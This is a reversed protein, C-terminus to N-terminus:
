TENQHESPLFKMQAILDSATGGKPMRRGAVGHDWVGIAAAHPASIGSALLGGITGALVDGTGATALRDNGTPNFWLPNPGILTHPGKLVVTGFHDLRSIASIRDSEVESRTIGLLRGAEAAHPTIIRDHRDTQVDTRQSFVTLADADAVVGGDFEHWLHVLRDQPEVGLGPGMVLVDHRRPDLTEPEALIVEPWLGHFTEWDKRAALLTVLGAGGRFAGHAALVAAGGGGWIAVHGRDWKADSQTTVPRWADIDSQELLHANSHALSPDFTHALSLGLDVCYVDGSWESGPACLLGTKWRGLTVTVDASVAPGILQGTNAHIGTPIDIAVCYPAIACASVANAIMGKSPRSQGTGLLADVAVTAKSVVDQPLLFPIDMQECLRRNHRADNTSPPAGWIRVDRGWHTLWRAAVYGDGGNNGPGCLFGIEGHPFREHIIEAVGRGAIEMLVASPIEAQEIVAQDLARVQELTCVPIM